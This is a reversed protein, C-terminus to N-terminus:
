SVTAENSKRNRYEQVANHFAQEALFEVLSAKGLLEKASRAKAVALDADKRANLTEVVLDNVDDGNGAAILQTQLAKAADKALTKVAKRSQKLEKKADKRAAKASNLKARASAVAKAEGTIDNWIPSWWANLKATAAKAKDSVLDYHRKILFYIENGKFYLLAFSGVLVVFGVTAGFGFAVIWLILTVVALTTIGLPKWTRAFLARALDLMNM